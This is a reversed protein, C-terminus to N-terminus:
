ELYETVKWEGRMKHNKIDEMVKENLPVSYCYDGGFYVHANSCDCLVVTFAETCCQGGIGSFGLSTSGWEQSFIYTKQPVPAKPFTQIYHNVVKDIVEKLDEFSTDKM